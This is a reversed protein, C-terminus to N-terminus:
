DEMGIESERRAGDVRAGHGTELQFAVVTSQSEIDLRFTRGGDSAEHIAVDHGSNVLMLIVIEIGKPVGESLGSVLRGQLQSNLSLVGLGRDYQLFWRLWYSDWSDRRHIM